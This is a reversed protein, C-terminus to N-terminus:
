LDRLELYVKDKMEDVVQNIVEESKQRRAYEKLIDYDEDLSFPRAERRDLQKLIHLGGELWLPKSIQGPDLQEAAERYNPPLDALAFWGMEGETARSTEDSSYQKVLEGWDAGAALSDLLNAALTEVRSSDAAEPREMLLIHKAHFNKPTKDVLKIIHYGFQTQVVGSLEGPKLALVAKEFEPVLDGKSFTGIDGGGEGSPDDSYQKALEEFSEGDHIRVLLAEAEARLAALSEDSAALDLILRALKVSRPHEPLSDRYTEYFDSVESRMVSVRSLLKNILKEKYIQEAVEERLRAKLERFNLGESALQRDFEEQTPFRSRLQEIRQEFSAELEDDSVKITTDQRAKILILRDNIMQRLLERRLTEMQEQDGAKVGSQVAFIQTQFELESALIPKDGVVAVIEDLREWAWLSTFATLIAFLTLLSIRRM